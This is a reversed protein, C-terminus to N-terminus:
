TATRVTSPLQRWAAGGDVTHFLVGPASLLWGQRASVFSFIHFPRSGGIAPNTSTAEYRTWTQGADATTYLYAAGSNPPVGLLWASNGRLSGASVRLTAGLDQAGLISGTAAPAALQATCAWVGARTARAMSQPWNPTVLSWRAGGDTTGWFAGYLYGGVTSPHGQAQLCGDNPTAFAIAAVLGQPNATGSIQTMPARTWTHGGDLTHWLVGNASTAWGQQATSFSLTMVTGGSSPLSGVARWTQGGDTTRLVARPNLSTGLGYGVGATPFSIASVPGVPGARYLVSWPQDAGLSALVELPAATPHLAAWLTGGPGAALVTLTSSTALPPLASVAGTASILAGRLRQLSEGAGVVAAGGGPLAVLHPLLQPVSGSSAVERWGGSGELRYLAWLDPLPGGAGVGNTLLWVGEANCALTGRMEVAGVAVPGQWSKGGNTTNWVQVAGGSALGALFGSGPSVWCASTFAGPTSVAHWSAGADASELLTSRAGPTDPTAVAIGQTATVFQIGSLNLPALERQWTRGGDTTRLLLQDGWAWGDAAGVFELGRVTASGCWQTTWTRGGDTTHAIIGRAGLWGLQATAFHLAHVTASPAGPLIFVHAPRTTLSAAVGSAALPPMAQPGCVTTPAGVLASVGTRTMGLVAVAALVAAGGAAAWRSGPRRFAAIVQLRRRNLSRGRVIGAAGPLVPDPAPALELVRILTRGYDPAQEPAMTGLVAADCAFEQAGSLQRASIWVLPNFWHLAAMAAAAWNVVLDGRRLHALEHLFVHRLETPSLREALGPPLVVQPRRVGVLVPGHLGALTWLTPRWRAVGAQAVGAAWLDLVAPDRLPLARRLRLRFRRQATLMRACLAAVGALWLAVLDWRLPVGGVPWPAAAAPPHTASATHPVSAASPAPTSAALPSRPIGAVPGLAQGAATVLRNASLPPAIWRYLSTPSAPAWPLALETFVLLWLGYAWTARARARLLALTPLVLLALVSARLSSLVAWHLMRPLLAEM